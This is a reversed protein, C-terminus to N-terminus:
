FEIVEFQPSLEEPREFFGPMFLEFKKLVSM